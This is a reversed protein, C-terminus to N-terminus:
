VAVGIRDLEDGMIGEDEGDMGIWGLGDDDWDGNVRRKEKGRELMGLMAIERKIEASRAM